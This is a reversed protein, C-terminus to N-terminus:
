VIVLECVDVPVGLEDSDGLTDGDMEAVGDCDGLSVSVDECVLESDDVADFVGDSDIVDVTEGLAVCDGDRLMVAETLLLTEDVGDVVGLKETVGDCVGDFVADREPVGLTDTVGLTVFVDEEM